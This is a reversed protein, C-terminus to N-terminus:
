ATQREADAREILHTMQQGLSRNEREAMERLKEKTGKRLLVTVKENSGDGNKAEM